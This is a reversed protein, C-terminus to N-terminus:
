SGLVDAAAPDVYYDDVAEAVPAELINPLAQQIDVSPTVFKASSPDNGQTPPGVQSGVGGIPDDDDIGGIGSLLVPKFYQKM